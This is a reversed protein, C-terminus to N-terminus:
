VSVVELLVPDHPTRLEHSLTTWFRDKTEVDEQLERHAERWPRRLGRRRESVDLTAGVVLV